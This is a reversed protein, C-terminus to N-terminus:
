EARVWLASARDRAHCTSFVLSGMVRARICKYLPTEMGLCNLRSYWFSIGGVWFARFDLPDSLCFWVVTGVIIELAMAWLNQGTFFYAMLVSQKQVRQPFLCVFFAFVINLKNFSKWLTLFKLELPTKLFLSTKTSLLYSSTPQKIFPILYM